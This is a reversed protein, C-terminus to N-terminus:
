WIFEAKLPPEVLAACSGRCWRRADTRDSTWRESFPLADSGRDRESPDAKGGVMLCRRPSPVFRRAAPLEAPDVARLRVQAFRTPELLRVALRVAM